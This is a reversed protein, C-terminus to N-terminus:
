GGGELLEPNEYINGIVEIGEMEEGVFDRLLIDDDWSPHKISFCGDEYIVSALLWMQYSDYYKVIDGEYIEKGNKDKLGTYQSLIYRDSENRISTMLENEPCVSVILGDMTLFINKGTKGDLVRQEKTSKPSKEFECFMWDNELPTIKIWNKYKKDWVRFKIERM